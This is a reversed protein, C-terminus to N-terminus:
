SGLYGGESIAWNALGDTSYYELGITTPEFGVLVMDNIKRCNM